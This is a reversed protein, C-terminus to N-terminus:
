ELQFLLPILLPLNRYSNFRNKTVTNNKIPKSQWSYSKNPTPDTGSFVFNQLTIVTNHDSKEKRKHISQSDLNLFDVVLVESVFQVDQSGVDTFETKQKEELLPTSAMTAFSIMGILFTFLIKMFKMPCIYSYKKVM